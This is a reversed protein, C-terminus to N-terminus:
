CLGRVILCLCAIPAHVRNPMLFLFHWTEHCCFLLDGVGDAGSSTVLTLVYLVFCYFGRGLLGTDDLSIRLLGCLREFSKFDIPWLCLPFPFPEDFRSGM